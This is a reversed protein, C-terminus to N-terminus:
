SVRGCCSSSSARTRLQRCLARSGCKASNRLAQCPSSAQAGGRARLPTPAGRRGLFRRTDLSECVLALADYVPALRYEDGPRQRTLEYAQAARSPVALVIRALQELHELSGRLSRRGAARVKADATAARQLM